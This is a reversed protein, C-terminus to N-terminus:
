DKSALALYTLTRFYKFVEKYIIKLSRFSALDSKVGWYYFQYNDTERRRYNLISKIRLIHYDHSVILVTEINSKKRLAQLTELVNELTNRANYDIDLFDHNIEDTIDHTRVLINVNNNTHVGSILINEQNYEKALKIAEQIRGRDGTFVAILDPRKKFFTEKTKVNENQSYLILIYSLLSYGLFVFLVKFFLSTAKRWFRTETTEFVYKKDFM